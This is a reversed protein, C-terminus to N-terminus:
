HCGMGPLQIHASSPRVQDTVDLYVFPGAPFNSPPVKVDTQCAIRVDNRSVHSISFIILYARTGSAIVNDRGYKQRMTAVLETGIQGVSGTVFIRPSQTAFGARAAFARSVLRASLMTGSLKGDPRATRGDLTRDLDPGDCDCM